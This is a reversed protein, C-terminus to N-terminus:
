LQYSDQPAIKLRVKLIYINLFHIQAESALKFCFPAPMCVYMCTFINKKWINKFLYM